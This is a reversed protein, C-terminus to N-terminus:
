NQGESDTGIRPRVCAARADKITEPAAGVLVVDDPCRPEIAYAPTPGTFNTLVGRIEAIKGPGILSPVDFGPLASPQFFLAGDSTGDDSAFRIKVQAFSLFNNWETCDLDATCADNCRKEADDFGGRNRNFGVVGDGNLDCNSRGESPVPEGDILEVRDRGFHTGIVPAKVVVLRSELGELVEANKAAVGDIDTFDPIPCPAEAPRWPDVIWGPTGLQVQGFFDAVNGSLRELRDCVRVGFPANFNFVFIANSNGTPEDLDTVYMGNSVIGTVVLRRDDGRFVVQKALFPSIAGFQVDRIRPFDFPIPASTGATGVVPAESDDNLFLCNPDRPWDAFGNGDDDAGNACAAIKGPPAPVFGADQAVIRTDGFAGVIKARLGRIEGNTLRVNTGAIASEDPGELEVLQGSPIASLRIWAAPGTFSQRTAGGLDRVRLSIEFVSAPGPDFTIPHRGDRPTVAVATVEVDLPRDVPLTSFPGCAAASGLGCALGLGLRFAGKRAFRLLASM